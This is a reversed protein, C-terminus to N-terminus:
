NKLDCPYVFVQSNFSKEIEEKVENLAKEDRPCIASKAGEKALSFSVAKGLGKSVGTVVAVKNKIGLEM